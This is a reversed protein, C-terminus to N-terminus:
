KITSRASVTFDRLSRVASNLLSVALSIKEMDNVDENEGHKKMLDNCHISVLECYMEVYELNSLKKM